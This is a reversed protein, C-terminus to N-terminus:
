SLTFYQPKPAYQNKGLDRGIGWDRQLEASSIQVRGYLCGRRGRNRLRQELLKRANQLQTIYLDLCLLSGRLLHVTSGKIIEFIRSFDFPSVTFSCM